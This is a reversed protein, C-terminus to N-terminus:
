TDIIECVIAVPKNILAPRGGGGVGLSRAGQPCSGLRPLLQLHRLM